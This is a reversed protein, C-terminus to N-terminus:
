MWGKVNALHLGILFGVAAASSVWGNYRILFGGLGGQEIRHSGWSRIKYHGYQREILSYVGAWVLGALIVVLVLMFGGQNYLIDELPTYVVIRDM